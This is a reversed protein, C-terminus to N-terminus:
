VVTIIILTLLIYALTSDLIAHWASSDHPSNYGPIVHEQRSKSLSILVAMCIVLISELFFRLGFNLMWSFHDYLCFIDRVAGQMAHNTKKVCYLKLYALLTFGTIVVTIVVIMPLNDWFYMSPYGYAEFTLNLAGENFFGYRTVYDKLM